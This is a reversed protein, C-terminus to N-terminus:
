PQGREHLARFRAILSRRYRSPSARAVELAADASPTGIQLLTRVGFEFLVDHESRRLARSWADRVRDYLREREPEAILLALAPVAEDRAVTALVKFLATHEGRPRQRLEPEALLPVLAQAAAVPGLEGCAAIAALRVEPSVDSLLAPLHERLREESRSMLVRLADLRVDVSPHALAPLLEAGARPGPIERLVRIVARAVADRPCRVGSALLWPRKEAHVLLTLQLHAVREPPLVDLREVMPEVVTPDLDCLLRGIRQSEEATECSQMRDLLRGVERAGSLRALLARLDIKVDESAVHAIVERLALISQHLPLYQRREILELLTEALAQKLPDQEPTGAVLAMSAIVHVVYQVADGSQAEDRIMEVLAAVDERSLQAEITALPRALFDPLPPVREVAEVGHWASGAHVAGLLPVWEERAPPALEEAMRCFVHPFRKEWMITVVDYTPNGPEAAHRLCGLYEFMEERGLGACFTIRRIGDSYLRYPYSGRIDPDEYIRARKYRLAFRDVWLDLRDHREFYADLHRCVEDAAQALMPNTDPYITFNRFARGLAALAAVVLQRTRAQDAVETHAHTDATPIASDDEFDECTLAVTQVPTSPEPADMTHIIADIAEIAGTASAFRAASDTAILHQIVETLGDPPHPSEPHLHALLSRLLQGASYLDSREDVPGEPARFDARAVGRALGDLLRVNCDPGTGRIVVTEPEVDGHIFGVRHLAGLGQLVGRAITLAERPSAGRAIVASARQGAFPELVLYHAGDTRAIAAEYLEVLHASRFAALQRGFVDFPLSADYAAWVGPRLVKVTVARGVGAQVCRLLAYADNELLCEEVRYRGDILRDLWADAPSVAEDVSDMGRLM